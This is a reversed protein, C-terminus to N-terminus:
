WAASAKSLLNVAGGCGCCDRQARCRLDACHLACGLCGDCSCALLSAPPCRAPVALELVGRMPASSSACGAGDACRGEWFLLLPACLVSLQASGPSRFPPAMAGCFPLESRSLRRRKEAAVAWVAWVLVAPAADVLPLAAAPLVPVASASATSLAASPGDGPTSPSTSTPAAASTATASPLDPQSPKGARYLITTALLTAKMTQLMTRWASQASTVESVAKSLQSVYQLKGTSMGCLRHPNVAYACSVLLRRCRMDLTNPARTM